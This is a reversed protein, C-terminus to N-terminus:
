HHSFDGALLEKSLTKTTNFLYHDGQIFVIVDLRLALQVATQRLLATLPVCIIVEGKAVANKIRDIWLKESDETKKKTQMDVGALGTPDKPEHQPM